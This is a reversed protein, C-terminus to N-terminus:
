IYVVGVSVWFMDWRLIDKQPLIIRSEGNLLMKNRDQM